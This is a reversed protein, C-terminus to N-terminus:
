AVEDRALIASPDIGAGLIRQVYAKYEMTAIEKATQL